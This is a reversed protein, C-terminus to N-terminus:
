RQKAEVRVDLDIVETMFSILYLCRPCVIRSWFFSYLCYMIGKAFKVKRKVEKKKSTRM